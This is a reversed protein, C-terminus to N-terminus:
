FYYNTKNQLAQYLRKENISFTILNLIKLARTKPPEKRKVNSILKNVDGVFTYIKSV